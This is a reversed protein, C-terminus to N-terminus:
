EDPPVGWVARWGQEFNGLEPPAEVLGLMGAFTQIVAPPLEAVENLGFEELMEAVSKFTEQYSAGQGVVRLEGSALRGVEALTLTHLQRRGGDVLHLDAMRQELLNLSPMATWGREMTKRGKARFGLRVGGGHWETTAEAGDPDLTSLWEDVFARLGDFPFDNLQHGPAQRFDVESLGLWFLAPPDVARLSEIIERLWKEYDQREEDMTLVTGCIYHNTDTGPIHRTAKLPRRNQLHPSTTM